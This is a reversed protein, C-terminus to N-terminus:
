TKIIQISNYEKARINRALGIVKEMETSIPHKFFYYIM